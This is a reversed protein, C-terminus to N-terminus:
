DRYINSNNKLPIIFTYLENKVLLVRFFARNSVEAMCNLSCFFHVKGVNTSFDVETLFPHGFDLFVEFNTAPAMKLFM